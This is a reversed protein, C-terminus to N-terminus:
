MGPFMGHEVGKLQKTFMHHHHDKAARSSEKSVLSEAAFGGLM